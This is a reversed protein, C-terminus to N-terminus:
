RVPQPASSAVEDGELLATVQWYWSSPDGHGPYTRPDLRATLEGGTTLQAIETLDPALITVRYSDSGPVVAWSLEFIGDGAATCRLGGIDQVTGGRYIIEGANWPQWRLVAVAILAIAAAAAAFRVVSLDFWRGRGRRPAGIVPAPEDPAAEIRAAIFRSLSTEAARTDAGDVEEGRMFESYAFALSSCRPCSEAHRRRPHDPPLNKLTGLADVPICENTM